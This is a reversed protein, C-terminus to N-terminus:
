KSDTGNRKEMLRKELKQVREGYFRGAIEVAMPECNDAIFAILEDSLQFWEGSYATEQFRSQIEQEHREDRNPIIGVILLREPCATQLQRLRSFPQQSWGIKVAPYNRFLIFYIDGAM